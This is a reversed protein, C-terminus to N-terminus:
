KVTRGTSQSYFRCCGSVPCAKCRPSSRRCLTQGHRRLLLYADILKEFGVAVEGQLAKKVSHYTTSYNKAEKGFGIRVLVRLGNSELALVPYTRTFLLIKEAGPEGISPFRMLAKKAAAFPQKLVNRLNGHFEQLLTQAIRRLREVRDEPRMGGMKAVRLLSATPAQIIDVPKTGVSERLAEFAADRQEDSVLYAVNEHLVLDFPDTVKPPDPKGYFEELTQVVQGFLTNRKAMM